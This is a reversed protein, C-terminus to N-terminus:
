TGATGRMRMQAAEALDPAVSRAKWAPLMLRRPLRAETLRLVEDMLESARLQLSNVRTFEADSPYPGGLRLYAAVKSTLARQAEIAERNAERLRASAEELDM